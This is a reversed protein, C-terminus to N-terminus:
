CRSSRRTGRARCASWSRARLADEAGFPVVFQYQVFGRPGTSATGAASSTSRTSSPPSRSSSTRRREGAGQPVVGRQIRAVTLRNLLRTPVWPPASCACPPPSGDPAPATRTPCSTLRRTTARADARQPGALRGTPSCTSGRSRTATTTTPRRGHAGAADDLDAARETDVRMARDRGAAAQFTAEVIVGTLGMGGATAWFLATDDTRASADACRATRRAGAHDVARPASRHRRRPPEQRPHRGRDRRRRDRAPHGAHGPVFWGLPLLRADATELSVGRRSATVLGTDLDLAPSRALLPSTSSTAARTRRPTATARGLGRAIVGRGSAGALLPACTTSPRPRHVAAATPATRGWGTLLRTTPREPPM